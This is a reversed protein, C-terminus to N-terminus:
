GPAQQAPEHRAVRKSVIQVSPMSLVWGLFPLSILWKGGIDNYNSGNGTAPKVLM